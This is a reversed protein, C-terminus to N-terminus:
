SLRKELNSEMFLELPSFTVPNSEGFLEVFKPRNSEKSSASGNPELPGKLADPLLDGGLNQYVLTSNKTFENTSVLSFEKSSVGVRQHLPVKKLPLNAM